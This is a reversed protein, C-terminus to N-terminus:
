LLREKSHIRRMHTKLDGSEYCAYGCVGCKFPREVTLITMHEKFHGTNKNSYSSPLNQPRILGLERALEDRYWVLLEEDPSVSKLTCYYIGGKYQLGVLNRDAETMAWNVYRMWNSTTKNQADVFDSGKDDKYIKRQLCYQSKHNDTIIDGGYPGFM